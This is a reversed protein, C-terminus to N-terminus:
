IGGSDVIIRREPLYSGILRRTDGKVGKRMLGELIAEWSVSNFFNGANITILVCVERHRVKGAKYSGRAKGLLVKRSYM